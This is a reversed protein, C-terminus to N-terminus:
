DHWLEGCDTDVSMIAYSSRLKKTSQLKVQIVVLGFTDAPIPLRSPSQNQADNSEDGERSPPLTGGEADLPSDRPKENSCLFSLYSQKSVGESTAM